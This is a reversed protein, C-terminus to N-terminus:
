RSNVSCVVGFIVPPMKKIEVLTFRMVTGLDGGGRWQTITILIILSQASFFNLKTIGGFRLRHCTVRVPDSTVPLSPFCNALRRLTSWKVLCLKLQTPNKSRKNGRPYRSGLSGLGPM